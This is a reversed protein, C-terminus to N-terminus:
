IRLRTPPWLTRPRVIFVCISLLSAANMTVFNRAPSLFRRLASQRPLVYDVGALALVLLEDAILFSRFPSPRLAVTAWSFLLIARPSGISRDQSFSLPVANGNKDRTWLRPMRAHVQWMGALTRLKRRFEGGQIQPYDYALAQPEVVVRSGKLMARLPLVLDDALTDEPIEEALARRLAYIWGTTNLASDIESHRRRVWPEWRWYLRMDAEEGVHASNLFSPQGTVAGVTPDAFNAVLHALADPHILQRVDTFFLIEGSAQQMARNLAAPKGSQSNRLLRVGRDAFSEVIRDTEDTSADSVVVFEMLEAPYNLLLLNELKQIFREGNRVALVVSVTTRFQMDKRIPPGSRRLFYALLVPYGILIYFVIVAGTALLFPAM